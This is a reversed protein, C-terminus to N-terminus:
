KKLAAYFYSDQRRLRLLLSGTKGADAVQSSSPDQVGNSEIIVDGARLGARDASSGPTIQTVVPLAKAGLGMREAQQPALDRVVLGMGQHPSAQQQGPTPDIPAEPRESLTISTGYHTGGRIIELAM